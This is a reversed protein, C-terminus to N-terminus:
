TSKNLIILAILMSSYFVVVSFKAFVEAWAIGFADHVRQIFIIMFALSILLAAKKTNKALFLKAKVHQPSLKRFKIFLRLALVLCGLSLITALM